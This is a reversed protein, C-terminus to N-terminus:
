PQRGMGGSAPSRWDRMGYRDLIAQLQGSARLDDIKRDLIRALEEAEKHQPSFAAYIRAAPGIQGARRLKVRGRHQKMFYDAVDQSEVFVDIKGDQLATVLLDLPYDGRAFWIRGTRANRHIYHDLLETYDYDQVAGLRVQELDALDTYTWRSSTDTFFMSQDLGLSSEPFVMDPTESFVTGVLGDFTGDRTDQVCRTWPITVYEVRYGLPQYIQRMIDVLCGERDSGAQGAFPMWLDSCIRLTRPSSSSNGAAIHTAPPVSVEVKDPYSTLLPQYTLLVLLGFTVLCCLSFWFNRM